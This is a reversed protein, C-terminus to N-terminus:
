SGCTTRTGYALSKNSRSPPLSTTGTIWVVIGVLGAEAPPSSSSRSPSRESLPLISEKFSETLGRLACCPGPLVEHKGDTIDLTHRSTYCVALLTQNQYLSIHLSVRTHQRGRGGPPGAGAGAGETGVEWGGKRRSPREECGRNLSMAAAPSLGNRGTVM